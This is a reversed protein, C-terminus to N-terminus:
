GEMDDIVYQREVKPKEDLIRARIPLEEVTPPEKYPGYTLLVVGAYSATDVFDDYKGTPFHLLEDECGEIWLATTPHFVLGAEYRACIPLSRSVKDNDAKLSIVPQGLARMRQIINLGFTVKEVGILSPKYRQILPMLIGEHKTTDARERLVHLLLLDRKPTVAWTSCVFWDSQAKETAAPDLTMFRWCQEKSFKDTGLDGRDLTYFEADETFYRFWTRKFRGGEGPQPAQQYLASFPYSGQVSHIQDLAARDFRAPCLAEGVDRGLPDDVEAIAPLKIVTWNAADDSALIRGALDDEHWRTLILIMSANPELRTYLDSLYWDWVRERYTESNAEEHGRIPDDIIVCDFGKGTVGAGVGAATLSGGAYTDWEGVSRRDGPSLLSQSQALRRCKRSFLEAFTQNYAAILVKSVPERCLRWIPYRVTALESKGHRPPLFIMLRKIDGRTLADLREYIYQQYPWDWTWQPTVQPLWSEFPLTRTPDPQQQRKSFDFSRIPLSGMYSQLTRQQNSTWTPLTM